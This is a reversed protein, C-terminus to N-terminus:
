VLRVISGRCVLPLSDRLQLNAGAVLFYKFFLYAEKLTFLGAATPIKM